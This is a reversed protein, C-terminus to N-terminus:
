AALGRRRGEALALWHALLTEAMAGLVTSHAELAVLLHALRDRGVDVDLQAAYAPSAAWGRAMEPSVELHFQIGYAHARWRFAQNPYALSGALLVAALSISVTRTGSFCM